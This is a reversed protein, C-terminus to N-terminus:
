RGNPVAREAVGLLRQFDSRAHLPRFEPSMALRRPDPGREVASTLWVMADDLLGRHALGEAVVYFADPRWGAQYSAMAAAILDDVTGHVVRAAVARPALGATPGVFALLQGVEPRDLRDIEWSDDRGALGDLIASMRSADVGSRGALHAQLWPSPGAGRPFAGPVGTEWGQREAARIALARDLTRSAQADQPTPAAIGGGIRAVQLARWSELGTFVAIFLASMALAPAALVYHWVAGLLPATLAESQQRSSFSRLSGEGGSFSLAVIVGSVVVSFQLFAIRGSPGAIREVLSSMLHGGDLPWIPMLNLVALMVGAWGIAGHLDIYREAAAMSTSPDVFARVVALGAVGLVLETGPGAFSIVNRQWRSLTTGPFSTWGGLFSLRVESPVGFAKAAFAHGFEHFVVFVAIAVVTYLGRQGGGSLSYFIFLGFAFWLDFRVPIGFM